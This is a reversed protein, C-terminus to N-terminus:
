PDTTHRLYDRLPRKQVTVATMTRQVQSFAYTPVVQGLTYEAEVHPIPPLSPQQWVFNATDYQYTRSISEFAHYVGRGDLGAYLKRLRYTHEKSSIVVPNKTTDTPINTADITDGFLFLGKLAEHPNDQWAGAPTCPDPMETPDTAIAARIPDFSNSCTCTYYNNNLVSTPNNRDADTYERALYFGRYERQRGDYVGTWYTYRKVYDGAAHTALNLNDHETVKTVLLVPMPLLSRWPHSAGAYPDFLADGLMRNTSSDYEIDTTKGLGNAVHTLLWPRNGGSLDMYRYNNAEGWLIDCTGSGNIDLTRVKKAWLPGQAPQVGQIVHRNPTWGTGDVNLWIDVADFRVQVLDDLGDGNVDDIRIGGEESDSFEPPTKMAIYTNEAFGDTCSGLTGTGWSGDGRGPWYRIDGPKVYVIDQLGDGNMDAM